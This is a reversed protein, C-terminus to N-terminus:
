IATKNKIAIGTSSLNNGNGVFSVRLFFGISKQIVIKTPINAIIINRDLKELARPSKKLVIIVKM